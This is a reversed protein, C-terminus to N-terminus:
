VTISVTIGTPIGWSSAITGLLGLDLDAMLQGMPKAESKPRREAGFGPDLDLRGQFV